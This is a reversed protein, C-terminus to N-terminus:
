AEGVIERARRIAEKRAMRAQRRLRAEHQRQREEDTEAIMPPVPRPKGARDLAVYVVYASS